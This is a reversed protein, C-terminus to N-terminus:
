DPKGLRIYDEGQKVRAGEFIDKASDKAEDFPEAADGDVGASQAEGQDPTKKPAIGVAKKSNRRESPIRM